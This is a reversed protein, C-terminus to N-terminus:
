KLFRKLNVDVYKTRLAAELHHRRKLPAMIM